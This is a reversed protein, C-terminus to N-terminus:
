KVKTSQVTVRTATATGDANATAKVHVRWGPQIDAAAVPTNGKRIVTDATLTFTVEVKKSTFVVLETASASRVTGEHERAAPPAPEEGEGDEGSGDQQVIIVAATFTEGSKRAKVHVRMDAALDAPTLPQNGKRILTDAAIAITQEVKRSTFLVIGDAAATRIVGEFEYVSERTPSAGRRKSSRAKTATASAKALEVSVFGTSQDLRLSAEIGDAARRFDLQAGDPIGAFSFQGDEGLLMTMGTGRVSVEVGAPSGGGVVGAMVVEGSLMGQGYTGTPTEHRGNCGALAVVVMAAIWVKVKM